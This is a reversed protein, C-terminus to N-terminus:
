AGCAYHEPETWSRVRLSTEIILFRPLFFCCCHFWTTGRQDRFSCQTNKPGWPPWLDPDAASCSTPVWHTSWLGRQLCSAQQCLQKSGTQLVSETFVCFPPFCSESVSVLTKTNTRIQKTHGRSWRPFLTESFIQRNGHLPFFFFSFSSLCQICRQWELCSLSIFIHWPIVNNESRLAM